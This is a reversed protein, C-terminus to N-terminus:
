RKEGKYADPVDRNVRQASPTTPPKYVNPSDSHQLYGGDTQGPYNRQYDAGKDPRAFQNHKDAM